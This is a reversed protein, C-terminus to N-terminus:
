YRRHPTAVPLAAALDSGPGDGNGTGPGNDNRRHFCTFRDKSIRCLFNIRLYTGSRM